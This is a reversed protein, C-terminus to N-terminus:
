DIPRVNLDDCRDGEDAVCLFRSTGESWEVFRAGNPWRGTTEDFGDGFRRLSEERLRAVLMEADDFRPMRVGDVESGAIFAFFIVEAGQEGRNINVTYPAMPPDLGVRTYGGPVDYVIGARRDTVTSNDVELASRPAEFQLSDEVARASVGAGEPYRSVLWVVADNEPTLSACRIVMGQVVGESVLADRGAIRTPVPPDASVSIPFVNDRLADHADEASLGTARTRGAEISVGEVADTLKFFHGGGLDVSWLGAPVNAILGTEFDEFRGDVIARRDTASSPRRVFREVLEATESQGFITLQGADSLDADVEASPRSAAVVFARGFEFIVGTSVVLDLSGGTREDLSVTRTARNEGDVIDYSLETSQGTTDGYLDVFAGELQATAEEIEVAGQIPGGSITFARSDNASMVAFTGDNAEEYHWSNAAVFRLGLIASEYHRDRREFAVGATPIPAELEEQDAANVGLTESGEQAPEDVSIRRAERNYPVPEPAPQPGGCAICLVSGLVFSPLFHASKM